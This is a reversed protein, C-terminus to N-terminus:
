VATSWAANSGVIGNNWHDIGTHGKARAAVEHKGEEISNPGQIL